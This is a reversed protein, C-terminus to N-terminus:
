DGMAYGIGAGIVLFILFPIVFAGLLTTGILIGFGYEPKTFIQAVNPDITFAGFLFVVGLSLFVLTVIRNTREGRVSLSVLYWMLVGAIMWSLFSPWYRFIDDILDAM